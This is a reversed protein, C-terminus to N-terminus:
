LYSQDTDSWIGAFNYYHADEWGSEESGWRYDGLSGQDKLHKGWGDETDANQYIGENVFHKSQGALEELEAAINAGTSVATLRNLSHIGIRSIYATGLASGSSLTVPEIGEDELLPNVQNCLAYKVTALYELATECAEEDSEETGFYVLIGDGTNKEFHGEYDRAIEMLEPVVMNLMYLIQEYDNRSAYETFGNIDLFTMVIRFKKAAHITMDELDPMVRGEPIEELRESVIDAREQVRDEIKANDLEM